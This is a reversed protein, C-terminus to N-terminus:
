SLLKAKAAQYEVDSLAGQQKLDNLRSIQEALGNSQSVPTTAAKPAENQAAKGIADEPSMAEFAGIQSFGQNVLKNRLIGNGAFGFILGAPIHFFLMQALLAGGASSGASSLAADMAGAIMAWPFLVAALWWLKNYLSWILPFFLGAASFGNKAARKGLIKHEYVAYTAM